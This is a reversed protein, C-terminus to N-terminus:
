LDTGRAFAIMDKTVIVVAIPSLFADIWIDPLFVKLMAFGPTLSYFIAGVQQTLRNYMGFLTGGVNNGLDVQDQQGIQEIREPSGTEVNVGLEEAVGMGMVVAAMANFAIFFITIQTSMKM